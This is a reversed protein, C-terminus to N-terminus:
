HKWPLTKLWPLALRIPIPLIAMYWGIDSQISWYKSFYGYWFALIGFCIPQYTIYRGINLVKNWIFVQLKWWLIVRFYNLYKCSNNAKFRLCCLPISSTWSIFFCASSTSHMVWKEKSWNRTKSEQWVTWIAEKVVSNFVIKKKKM